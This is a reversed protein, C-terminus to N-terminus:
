KSDITMISRSSNKKILGLIEADSYTNTLNLGLIDKRIEVTLSSISDHLKAMEGSFSNDGSINKVVGLCSCYENIVGPSAIVALKHTIFQLRIIEKETFSDKLSMEELLDLLQQYTSTKLEIHRINQEKEIEVETQKNLLLATILITALTGLIILVIEQTFPFDITAKYALRTFFYGAVLTLLSLLLYSINKIQKSVM